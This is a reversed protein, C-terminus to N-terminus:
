QVLERALRLAGQAPEFVATVPELRLEREAASASVARRLLNSNVLLGGALALPVPAVLGLRKVVAALALALERGADAVIGAAVEDDAAAAIVLPALAAIDPPLKSERYVRRILEEAGSLGWEALVADTLRTPGARGDTAAVVARLAALGIAYGSGEDGLVYGWGGARATQGAANRGYAISGTGCILAVGWDDPTGAALVLEADNTVIVAAGAFVEGAWARYLAKDEERAAGALGLCLAAIRPAAERPGAEADLGADQAAHGIAERLARSAVAFGASQYNANGGYGRGLVRGHVDALLALTKSGGGDIALILPTSIDIM